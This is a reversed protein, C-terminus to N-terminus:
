ALTKIMGVLQVLSIAQGCMRDVTTLNVQDLNRGFAMLTHVESDSSVMYMNVAILGSVQIGANLM